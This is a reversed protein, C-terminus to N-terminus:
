ARGTSENPRNTRGSDTPRVAGQNKLREHWEDSAAMGAVFGKMHYLRERDSLPGQEYETLRSIANVIKFADQLTTEQDNKTM